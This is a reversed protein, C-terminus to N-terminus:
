EISLFSDAEEIQAHSYARKQKPPSITTEFEFPRKLSKITPMIKYPLTRLSQNHSPLQLVFNKGNMRQLARAFLAARMERAILEDDKPDDITTTEIDHEFLSGISDSAHIRKGVADHLMELSVDDFANMMVLFHDTFSTHFPKYVLM